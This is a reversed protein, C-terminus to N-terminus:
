PTKKSERDLPESADMSPKEVGEGMRDLATQGTSPNGDATDIGTDDAAPQESSETGNEIPFLPKGSDQNQESTSEQDATDRTAPKEPIEIFRYSRELLRAERAERTGPYRTQIDQLITRAQGYQGQKIHIRAMQLLSHPEAQDPRELIASQQYRYMSDRYQGQKEQLAALEQRARGAMPHNPYLILFEELRRRASDNQGESIQELIFRFRRDAEQNYLTEFSQNRKERNTQYNRFGAPNSPATAEPQSEPQQNETGAPDDLPNAPEEALLTSAILLWSIGFSITRNRM